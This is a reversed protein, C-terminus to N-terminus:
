EDRLVPNDSLKNARGTRLLIKPTATVEHAVSLERFIPHLPAIGPASSECRTEDGEGGNIAVSVERRAGSGPLLSGSRGVCGALNDHAEAGTSVFKNLRVDESGVRETISSEYYTVACFAISFGDGGSLRRLLVARAIM